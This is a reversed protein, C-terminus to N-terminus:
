KPSRPVTHPEHFQYLSLLVPEGSVLRPYLRSPTAVRCRVSQLEGQQIIFREVEVELPESYWEDYNRVTARVVQDPPCSRFQEYLSKQELAFSPSLEYLDLKVKEGSREPM